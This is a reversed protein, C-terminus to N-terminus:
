IFRIKILVRLMHITNNSIILFSITRICVTLEIYLSYYFDILLALKHKTFVRLFLIFLLLVSLDSDRNLLHAFSHSM